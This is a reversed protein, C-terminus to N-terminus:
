LLGHAQTSSAYDVLAGSAEQPEDSNGAQRWISQGFSTVSTIGHPRHLLGQDVVTDFDFTARIGM